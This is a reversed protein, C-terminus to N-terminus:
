FLTKITKRVGEILESIIEKTPDDTKKHDCLNRIDGLRQIGRWTPLDVIDEKKLKENLESISPNKLVALKHQRCVELLHGELVVGAVAGAARHFGKRNLEDATDLEHDFLDAQVLSHIDFLSSDFRKKVSGIIQIQQRMLPIAAKKSALIQVGFTVEIGQLYDSITYNGNTIEKRAKVPKYYSVFDGLRDPLLQRVTALGESYWTQYAEDFKPLNKRNEAKVKKQLEPSLELLMALSLEYGRTVLSEVEARYKDVNKM